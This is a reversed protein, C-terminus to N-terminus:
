AVAKDERVCLGDAAMLKRAVCDRCFREGNVSGPAKLAMEWWGVFDDESACRFWNRM